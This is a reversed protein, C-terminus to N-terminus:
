CRDVLIRARSVHEPYALVNVASWGNAEGFERIAM